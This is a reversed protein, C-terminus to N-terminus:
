RVKVSDLTAFVAIRQAASYKPHCATLVLHECNGGPCDGGEAIAARTAEDFGAGINLISWDTPAIIRVETVRYVFRGYPMDLRVEDGASLQDVDLFPAGYTTRHGAIGVPRGMGPFGAEPYFGPGAKLDEVSTGHVAVTSVGIAPISIRGAADGRSLEQRYRRADPRTLRPDPAVAEGSGGGEFTAEAADLQDALRTQQSSAALATFPDGHLVTIMVFALLGVGMSVLGTGAVRLGHTM